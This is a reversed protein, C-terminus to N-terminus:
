STSATKPANNLYNAAAVLLAPDDKFRGLGNNCSACLLGRVRGTSHDHDIALRRGSKCPGSCIACLGNQKVMIEAHQEPTIGYPRLRERWRQAAARDPHKAEYRARNGRSLHPRNVRAEAERIRLCSRCVRRGGSLRTNEPTFEHGRWCHTKARNISATTRM